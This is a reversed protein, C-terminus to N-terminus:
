ATEDDLITTRSGAANEIIIQCWTVDNRNFVQDDDLEGYEFVAFIQFCDDGEPHRVPTFEERGKQATAAPYLSVDYVTVKHGSAQCTAILSPKTGKTLTFWNCGCPCQVQVASHYEDALSPFKATADKVYGELHAPFKM